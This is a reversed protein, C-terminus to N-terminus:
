FINKTRCVVTIFPSPRKCVLTNGVTGAQEKYSTNRFRRRSPRSGKGIAFINREYERWEMGNARNERIDYMLLMKEEASMNRLKENWAKRMAEKRKGMTNSKEIQSTHPDSGKAVQYM